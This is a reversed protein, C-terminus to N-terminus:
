FILLAVQAILLFSAIFFTVVNIVYSYKIGRVTLTVNKPYNSVIKTYKNLEDNKFLPSDENKINETSWFFLSQQRAARNFEKEIWINIIRIFHYILGALISILLFIMTWKFLCGRSMFTKNLNSLVYALEGTGLGTLWTVFISAREDLKRLSEQLREEHELFDRGEDSKQLFKKFDKFAM